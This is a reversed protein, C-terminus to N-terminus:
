AEAAPNLAIRRGTAQAIRREILGLVSRREERTFLFRLLVGTFLATYVAGAAVVVGMAGWRGLGSSLMWAPYAVVLAALHPAFGPLVVRGIFEGARVGLLHNAYAIFFIASMVTASAVGIGIGLVTWEGAIMRAAPLTIFLALINPIAYYFEKGPLGIGKLITTGPGTLLHIQWSISYCFMLLAAGPYHQGVWAALIPGPLTALLGYLYGSALNMHRAGRVYFDRAASKKTSEDELGGHMHSAAPLFSTLFASPVSAAMGPLKNSIDLLGTAQLGILPAAVVREISNLVIGLMGALQVTGGFSLLTKLSARSFRRPSLKLWEIAKYALLASLAIEVLTRVLYAIALGRLGYGMGVLSFILVTEILYSIVWIGQVQAIRQVGILADKFASLATTLLFVAVVSIVIIRADGALGPSVNLWRAIEPWLLWVGVFLAACVTSAFILGTSLLANARDHERRAGYEAVFKIYVNSVGFTSIGLYSILIFITAWLGYAELGVHQLVFPPIFFRTALYGIRAGIDAAINISLRREAGDKSM